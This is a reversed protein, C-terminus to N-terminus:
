FLGHPKGKLAKRGEKAYLIRFFPELKACSTKPNHRQNGIHWPESISPKCLSRFIGLYNRFIGSCTHIHMFDVQIAKTKCMGNYDM